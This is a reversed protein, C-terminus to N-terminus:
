HYVTTPRRGSPARVALANYRSDKLTPIEIPMFDNRLFSITECFVIESFVRLLQGLLNKTQARLKNRAQDVSLRGEMVATTTALVENAGIFVPEGFDQLQPQEPGETSGEHSPRLDSSKNAV